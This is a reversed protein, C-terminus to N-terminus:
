KPFVQGKRRNRLSYTGYRSGPLRGPSLGDLAGREVGDHPYSAEAPVLCTHPSMIQRMDHPLVSSASIKMRSISNPFQVIQYRHLQLVSTSYLCSIRSAM